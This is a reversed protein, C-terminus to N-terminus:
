KSSSSSSSSSSSNGYSKELIEQFQKEVLQELKISRKESEKILSEVKEAGSNFESYHIVSDMKGGTASNLFTNVKEPKDSTIITNTTTNDNTTTTTTTSNTNTTLKTSNPILSDLDVTNGKSDRLTLYSTELSRIKERIDFGLWRSVIEDHKKRFESTVTKKQNNHDGYESVISVYFAISGLLGAIVRFKGMSLAPKYVKPIANNRFSNPDYTGQKPPVTNGQNPLAGRMTFNPHTENNIEPPPQISSVTHTTTTTQPQPTTTSTTTTTPPPPLPQNNEM